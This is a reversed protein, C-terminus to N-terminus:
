LRKRLTEKATELQRYLIAVFAKVEQFAAPLQDLNNLDRANREMEQMHDRADERGMYFFTPKIKHAAEAAAKWDKSEIAKELAAMTLPTQTQFADLMELMFDASDGSMDSLYSLDLPLNNKDPNIM